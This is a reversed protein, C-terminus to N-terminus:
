RPALSKTERTCTAQAALSELSREFKQSLEAPTLVDLDSNVFPAADKCLDPLHEMQDAPLCHAYGAEDFRDADFFDDHIQIAVRGALTTELLSTSTLSIAVDFECLAEAITGVFRQPFESRNAAALNSLMPSLLTSGSGLTLGKLFTRRNNM